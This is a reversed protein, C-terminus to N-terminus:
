EKEVFEQIEMEQDGGESMVDDDELGGGEQEEVLYEELDCGELEKLFGEEEVEVEMEEGNNDETALIVHEKFARVMNSGNDTIFVNVKQEIGWDKLIKDIACRIALGTISGEMQKVALTATRICQATGYEFFHATVGLYSSTMGKKTWVDTCVSISKANAMHSQVKARMELFLVQVANSLARVGPVEYKPDLMYLLTVFDQNEVM